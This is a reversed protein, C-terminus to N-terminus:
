VQLLKSEGQPTPHSVPKSVRKTGCAENTSFPLCFEGNMFHVLLIFGYGLEEIIHVSLHIFVHIFVTAAIATVM